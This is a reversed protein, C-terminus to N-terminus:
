NSMGGLRTCESVGMTSLSRHTSTLSDILRCDILRARLRRVQGDRREHVHHLLPRVGERRCPERGGAERGVAVVQRADVRRQLESPPRANENSKFTKMKAREM